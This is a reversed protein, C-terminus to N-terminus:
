DAYRGEDRHSVGKCSDPQLALGADLADLWGPQGPTFIMHSYLRKYGARKNV